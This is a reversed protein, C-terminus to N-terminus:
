LNINMCLDENEKVYFTTRWEVKSVPSFHLSSYAYHMNHEDSSKGAIFIASPGDAGGIIGISCASTENPVFSNTGHNRSKKYRPKDGRTCDQIRFEEPPLDPSIHYSLVKYINPYQIAETFRFADTSLTNTECGYLTLRHERKSVPHIMAIEQGYCPDETMFHEGSYMVPRQKLLISLTKLQPKRSTKWPLCVRIFSWGLSRDCAYYNMLEEQVDEIHEQEQDCPHWGVACMSPHELKKGNIQAEVEIDISFPSEKEMRELEEDSLGSIRKDQNWHKLFNEIRERPIAVCFDVVLGKSCSYVAPIYWKSGCWLFEKKVPIEKGAREFKHDGWFNGSYYVKM